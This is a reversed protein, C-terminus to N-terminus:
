PSPGGASPRSPLWSNRAISVPPSPSATAARIAVASRRFWGARCRRELATEVLLTARETRATFARGDPSEIWQLWLTM